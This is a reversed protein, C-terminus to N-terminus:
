KAKVGKEVVEEKEKANVEWHIVFSIIIRLFTIAALILFEDLTRIIVTKLIEAALKFELSLALAKALEIKLNENGFDLRNKIFGIIAKISAVTIIIVGITELFGTIYPIIIELFSEIYM